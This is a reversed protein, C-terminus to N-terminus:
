FAGPRIAADTGGDAWVISGHIYSSADSLMYVIIDAIERSTATRGLPVPILDVLKAMEPNDLVAQYLPTETKGPIIANLRVGIKGWEIARRRVARALAHKSLCYAAGGNTGAMLERAKTEDHDLLALVIPDEYNVGFQAANSSIAVAAGGPRGVMADKLGDLLDVSGFYNVVLVRPADLIYGGLGAALVLRDVSGKTIELTENIAKERGEPTSLDATVEVDRLDVGVVRDGQAELRERVAMGIGSAAGTVIANGM